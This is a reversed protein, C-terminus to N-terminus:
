YRERKLLLQQGRVLGLNWLLDQAVERFRPPMQKITVTLWKELEELKLAMQEANIEPSVVVGFNLISYEPIRSLAITIFIELQDPEDAPYHIWAAYTERENQLLGVFRNRYLCCWPAGFLQNLRKILYPSFYPLKATALFAPAGSSTKITEKVAVAVPVTQRFIKDYVEFVYNCNKESPRNEFVIIKIDPARETIADKLFLGFGKPEVPQPIERFCILQSAIGYRMAEYTQELTTASRMQNLFEALDEPKKRAIASLFILEGVNLDILMTPRIIKQGALIGPNKTLNITVDRKQVAHLFPNIQPIKSGWFNKSLANLAGNIRELFSIKM